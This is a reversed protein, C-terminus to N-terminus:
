LGLNLPFSNQRLKGDLGEGMHGQRTTSADDADQTKRTPPLVRKGLIVERKKALDRSLTAIAISFAKPRQRITPALLCAQM